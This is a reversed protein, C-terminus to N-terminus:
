HGNKFSFIFVLILLGHRVRFEPIAINFFQSVHGGTGFVLMREDQIGKLCEFVDLCVNQRSADNASDDESSGICPATRGRM